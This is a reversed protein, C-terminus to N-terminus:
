RRVSRLQITVPKKPLIWNERRLGKKQENIKKGQQNRKSSSEARLSGGTSENKEVIQDTPKTSKSGVVSRNLEVTGVEM